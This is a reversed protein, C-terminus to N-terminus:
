KKELFIPKENNIAVVYYNLGAVTIKEIDRGAGTVEYNLDSIAFFGNQDNILVSGYLADQRGLQTNIEYENGVLFLDLYSDKNIDDVIIAHVSSLQVQRPLPVIEFVNNGTNEFYTSALLNVKKVEAKELKEIPFLDKLSANAFKEYSLFKKNLYPIQNVLEDKTALTTQKGQYYYTLIPDIKGNEDFDSRYLLIPENVSANLRTNLGWNGSVIDLDGDKDFDAVEVSNWWGNTGKLYEEKLSIGDNYFIAIPMWNGVVVLDEFGDANLDIVEIDEILGCSRFIPAYEETIDTFQGKGNNEFIYNEGTKGYQYPMSNTGIVIDLDGDLELDISKVVSAQTFVTTFQTSDKKLLGGENIYLRPSIVPGTRFENGGSVVLLDQDGDNDCDFFLQDTDESKADKEFLEDQTIKFSGTEEQVYLGAAQWKGGGIMFDDLGDQNVDVVSIKPGENGNIFPIFPDRNFELTNEEHHDFDVLLKQRALPIKQLRSYYDGTAEEYNLVLSQDSKLGFYKKFKGDPWIIELSDILQSTDVGIVFENPLASLYPNNPFNEETVVLDKTYIRVKAGIGKQNGDPGNLKIKIFHKEKDLRNEFVFVDEDVNNVVIDLDGDNDLDAYISGNSFSAEPSFWQSSVDEYQLQGKNRFAYNPIKIAPLKDAFQLSKQTPGQSLEKQIEDNAIFNVFDMNNTAGKIGNTIYLDKLGDQDFDAGLASWSWDTAAVGSLHALESFKGNKRNLHLSNQMFQHQYGNKLFYTYTYYPDDNGSMKYTELKEPLMDLEFIDAWGDNNLDEILNGMSYHSSHGITEPQSSIVDQFKGNKQNIYLYDNEFFDNSVYIDPYGDNNVDGVSADLGYGITGQYIGSEKSVDHFVGNENELLRDGSFTDIESRKKGNGYSRNPHVSHNLLFMDIDNDLDYDFFVAHTSFGVLDLGYSTGSEKFEPIGNASIGQNIYLLNTGSIAQYAGIKCIYIDLLGDNNVDVHSVGTSWESSNIIGAKETVDEFNFNGQNLYLKDAVQNGVFYLDILGDNNYDGAAIGAGNYYYLYTLINLDETPTLENVFSIGTQSNPLKVFQGRKDNCGIFIMLVLVVFAKLASVELLRSIM